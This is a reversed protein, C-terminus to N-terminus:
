TRQKTRTTNGDESEYYEDKLTESLTKGGMAAQVKDLAEICSPGHFGKAEIKVSWDKKMIDVIIFEEDSM